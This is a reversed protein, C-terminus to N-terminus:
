ISPRKARMHPSGDGRIGGGETEGDGGAAPLRRLLLLGVVVLVALRSMSQLLSGRLLIMQYAALVPAALTVVTHRGELLGRLYGDDMRRSFVGLAAFGFAVGLLGFNIYFEAWLPASLNENVDFRNYRALVIGTDFPKEPWMKRPLWFLLVGEFQRGNTPGLEAVFDAASIVQPFSDYDGTLVFQEALPTSGHAGLGASVPGSYRYKDAYPFVVVLSLVTVVMFVRGLALRRWLLVLAVAVTGFWFRPLSIPNNLIVNLAVLAGALGWSGLSRRPLRGLRWLTIYLLVFAAVTAGTVLLSGIAKDDTTILGASRLAESTAQRSTFLAKVGGLKSVILPSAALLIVALPKWLRSVTVERAPDAARRRPRYRVYLGGLQWAVIGVLILVQTDRVSERNLPAAVPTIQTALQATGAIGLWVYVYCWFFFAFPRMRAAAIMRTIQVGAWMTIALQLVTSEGFEAHLAHNESIRLLVYGPILVCLLLGTWWAAVLRVLGAVRVRDGTAASSTTATTTVASSM